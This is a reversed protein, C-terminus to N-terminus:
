MDCYWGHYFSCREAKAHGCNGWICDPDRSRWQTCRAAVGDACNGFILKYGRAGSYPRYSWATGGEPWVEPSLREPWLESVLQPDGDHELRWAELAEAIQEGGVRAGECHWLGHSYVCVPYMGEGRHFPPKFGFALTFGRGAGTTYRWKLPRGATPPEIDPLVEPAIEDLEEPFDGHRDQWEGLASVIADGRRRSEEINEWSFTGRKECASLTVYALIALCTGTARGIRQRRAM